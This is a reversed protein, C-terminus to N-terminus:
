FRSSFHKSRPVFQTNLYLLRRKTKLLNIYCESILIRLVLGFSLRECWANLFVEICWYEFYSTVCILRVRRINSSHHEEPENCLVPSYFKDQCKTIRLYYTLIGFCMHQSIARFHLLNFVARLVKPNGTMLLLKKSVHTIRTTVVREHLLTAHFVRKLWQVHM